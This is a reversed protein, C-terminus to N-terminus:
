ETDQRSVGAVFVEFDGLCWQLLERRAEGGLDACCLLSPVRWPRNPGIDLDPCVVVAVDM